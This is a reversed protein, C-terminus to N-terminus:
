LSRIKYERYFTGLINNTKIDFDSPMFKIQPLVTKRESIISLGKVQEARTRLEDAVRVVEVSDAETVVKTCFQKFNDCIMMNMRLGDKDNEIKELISTKHFNLDELLLSTQKDVMRKIDDGRKIIDGKVTDVSHTVAETKESANRSQENINRMIRNVDDLFTLFDKKFVEATDGIECIKHSKHNTVSCTVCFPVKCVQCYFELEKTPHKECFSAEHKERMDETVEGVPSLKHGDDNEYKQSNQLM